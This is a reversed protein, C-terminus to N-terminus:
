ARRTPFTTRDPSNSRIPTEILCRKGTEDTRRSMKFCAESRTTKCSPKSWFCLPLIFAWRTTPWCRKGCSLGMNAEAPLSAIEEPTYGFAEAIARAGANESSLGSGAIAGYKARVAETMKRSM